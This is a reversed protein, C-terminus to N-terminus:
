NTSGIDPLGADELLLLENDLSHGPGSHSDVALQVTVDSDQNSTAPRNLEKEFDITVVRYKKNSALKVYRPASVSSISRKKSSKSKAEVSTATLLTIAAILGIITKM